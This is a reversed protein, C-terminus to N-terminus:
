APTTHCRPLRPVQLPIDICLWLLDLHLGAMIRDPHSATSLRESHFLEIEVNPSYSYFPLVSFVRYTYSYDFVDTTRDPDPDRVGRLEIRTSAFDPFDGTRYRRTGSGAHGCRLLCVFVCVTKFKETLAVAVGSCRAVRVCVCLVHPVAFGRLRISASPFVYPSPASPSRIGAGFLVGRPRPREFCIM